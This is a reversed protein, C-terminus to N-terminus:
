FQRISSRDAVFFSIARFSQEYDPGSMLSAIVKHVKRSDLCSAHTLCWVVLLAEIVKLSLAALFSERFVCSTQASSPSDITPSYSFHGSEWPAAEGISDAMAEGEEISKDRYPIRM